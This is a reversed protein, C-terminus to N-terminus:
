YIRSLDLTFGRLVLEGSLTGEGDLQQPAQSPRYVYARKSDPDILLGLQAGCAIYEEMKAQLEGLGDSPSRLELVFDPCLPGFKRRAEPSLADWRSSALWALDPSREAGNPLLFGTFSDLGVGGGEREIWAFLQGALAFNRRGTEGGTPSTILLEGAASREIRLDRNEVCFAYLQDDDLPRALQVRLPLHSLPAVILV